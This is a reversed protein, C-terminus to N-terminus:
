LDYVPSYIKLTLRTLQTRFCIEYEGLIEPIELEFARKELNPLRRWFNFPDVPITSTIDPSMHVVYSVHFTKCVRAWELPHTKKSPWSFSHWCNKPPTAILLQYKNYKSKQEQNTSTLVKVIKFTNEHIGINRNRNHLTLKIYFCVLACRIQCVNQELM